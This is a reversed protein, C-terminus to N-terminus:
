AAGYFSSLPWLDGVPVNQTPPCALPTPPPTYRRMRNCDSADQMPATWSESAEPTSTHSVIATSEICPLTAFMSSHQGASAVTDSLDGADESLLVPAGIAVDPTTSTIADAADIGSSAAIARSSGIM